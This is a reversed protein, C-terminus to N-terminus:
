VGYYEFFNLKYLSQNVASIWHEKEKVQGSAAKTYAVLEAFINKQPAEITLTERMFELRKIFPAAAEKNIATIANNILGEIERCEENTLKRKSEM